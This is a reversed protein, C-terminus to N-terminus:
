TFLPTWPWRPRTSRTLSTGPSSMRLGLQTTPTRWGRTCRLPCMTSARKAASQQHGGICVALGSTRWAEAEWTRCTAWWTPCTCLSTMTQLWSSTPMHAATTCGTSSCSWSWPWITSPTWSTRSSWIVTCITRRSSSSRIVLGVGRPGCRSMRWPRLHELCSCWRSQRGWHTKSTPRMVGPPESQVEGRLTRLPPKLLSCSSSMRTLVSIQITWCTVSTASAEPKSERSPSARTSLPSATSWTATPTPSSMTSPMTTLRSGAFWWWHCFWAPPWWSCASGNEYGASFWVCGPFKDAAPPPSSSLKPWSPSSFTSTPSTSQATGTGKILLKWGLREVNLHLLLVPPSPLWQTQRPRDAMAWICGSVSTEGM